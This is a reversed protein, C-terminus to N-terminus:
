APRSQVLTTYALHDIAKELKKEPGAVSSQLVSYVTTAAACDSLVATLNRAILTHIAVALM